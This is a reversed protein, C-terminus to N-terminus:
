IMEYELLDRLVGIMDDNKIMKDEEIQPLM